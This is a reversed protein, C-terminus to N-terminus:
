SIFVNCDKLISKVTAIESDSISWLGLSGYGNDTWTSNACGQAFEKLTQGDDIVQSMQVENLLIYPYISRAKKIKEEPPSCYWKTLRALEDDSLNGDDIGLAHFEPQKKVHDIFAYGFGWDHLNAMEKLIRHFGESGFEIIGNNMAFCLSSNDIIENIGLSISVFRDYAPSGSSTPNCIIGLSTIDSFGSAQARKHAAGSAKQFKESYGKGDVGVYSPALGKRQLEETVRQHFDSFLREPSAISRYDHLAIVWEYESLDFM